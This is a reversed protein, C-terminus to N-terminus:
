FPMLERFRWVGSFDLRGAVETGKTNWRHEFFGMSKPVSTRSWDYAVDLLSGCQPCAVHVEEVSFTSACAPNICRQFAADPM